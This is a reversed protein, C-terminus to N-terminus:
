LRIPVYTMLWLIPSDSSKFDDFMRQVYSYDNLDERSREYKGVTEPLRTISNYIKMYYSYMSPNAKRYEEPDTAHCVDFTDSWQEEFRKKILPKFEHILLLIAEESTM